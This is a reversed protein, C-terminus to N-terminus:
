VREHGLTNHILWARTHEDVIYSFAFMGCTISKKHAVMMFILKHRSYMNWVHPLKYVQDHM